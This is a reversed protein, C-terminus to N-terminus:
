KRGVGEYIFGLEKMYEPEYINRLDLFVPNSMNNVIKLLNLSRFQNWETALVLIDANECAEYENNCYVFKCESYLNKCNEMAVPDYVRVKAGKEMLRKGIYLAPSERLDDTEPKFSLGLLAIKKDKINGIKNKIKKIMIEKQEDNVEIVTEIISSKTGFERAIKALAQTDKPFCSGGYGPGPHLFKSGIRGDLGMAKSVHQVDAGVAECINAMENIFTIKAALFANSAYKIMEATELNTIVFPVSILYLVNYIQKMIKKAIDSEAGIVVRDPHTFDKVAAGERLFEPNSVVDFEFSVGRRNLVEQIKAKVKRGTGVPVTSKDVIVKYGNMHEAIEEAASLVYQLDASGDELPPTGVAIFIVESNEVSHKLDITFSLRGAKVNKDVIDKLGPEYIPIIGNKLKKIKSIDKDMCIVNMGFESLCSGSVLGVYGTGIVAIKNNFQM